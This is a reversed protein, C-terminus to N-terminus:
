EIYVMWAIVVYFLCVPYLALLRRNPPVMATMFVVSAARVLSPALSRPLTM